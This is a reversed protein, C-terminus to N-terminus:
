KRRWTTGTAGDELIVGADVLQQRVKDAQAWNKEARARNREDILADIQQAFLGDATQQLFDAPENTLLGLINALEHLQGALQQAKTLDQQAKAHNIDRTLDFLVALAEPTNFDDDMKAMFRERYDGISETSATPTVDRLALYFRNLAAKANNLAADSYDLPSRYHSSLLFYRVVEAPYLALVDRITFFNGLSKSMKERNIQVFGVHMWTNVFPDGTAAVSQAIENEHHPFQLDFGGGHIDFHTGLETTSMASCEIHWGPRGEGWPSPWSPEGAKAKKWLVFDLPCRKSQEIDVRAGAQLDDLTKHSLKGYEAFRTVDYNVDGNDAVYAYGKDILTNIMTIMSEIWDTARPEKDPPLVGLAQADQHMADIFVDTLESVSQQKKNARTIIKDDIDTINRVYTVHYGNIRLYRTIIDFVVLVRAHGIHCYDYVTMGCVYLKVEGPTLPKFPTKQKTLTNYIQLM